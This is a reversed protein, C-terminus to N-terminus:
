LQEWGLLEALAREAAYRAELTNASSGSAQDNSWDDALHVRWHAGRLRLPHVSLPRASLRSLEAWVPSATARAARSRLSCSRSHCRLM